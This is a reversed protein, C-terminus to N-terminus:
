PMAEKRFMCAYEISKNVAVDTAEADSMVMLLLTCCYVLM